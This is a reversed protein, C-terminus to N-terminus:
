ASRIHTAAGATCRGAWSGSPTSCRSRGSRQTMMVVSAIVLVMIVVMLTAVIPSLSGVQLARGLEGYRDPLAGRDRHLHDALHRESAASPSRSALWMILITGATQTIM